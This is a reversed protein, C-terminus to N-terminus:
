CKPGWIDLMKKKKKKNASKLPRMIVVIFITDELLPQGFESSHLGHGIESLFPKFVITEPGCM